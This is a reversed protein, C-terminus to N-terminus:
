YLELRRLMPYVRELESASWFFAAASASDDHASAELAKAVIRRYVAELSKNTIM